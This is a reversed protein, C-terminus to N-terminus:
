LKFQYSEGATVGSTVTYSDSTYDSTYGVKYSWTVGSTGADWQLIYSTVPSNGTEADTALLTWELEIANYTTADGRALTTM